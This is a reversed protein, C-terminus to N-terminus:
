KRRLTILTIEAPMDLRVNLGITGIGRNVYLYQGEHGYLGGWSNRGFYILSFEIGAPKLGWQMGHTHGSLTLQINKRDRVRAEWHAPDHTMLIKFAHAPVGKMALTLDAYQHFPPYGWNEVGTLYITDGANIIPVSENRLLRFGFKRNADVISDLNAEKLSRSKWRTYDGYDHNGLISYMGFKANLKSFVPEWGDTEKGFNNVLDGTFLIMDPHLSLINKIVKGIMYTHHNYSGLHLDSIQAITFGDFAEPLDKFELNLRQIRLQYRGIVAGTIVSGIIGCSIIVGAFLFGISRKRFLRSIFYPVSFFALVTKVLFDAILVIDYNFYVSYGTAESANHPYAFLYIFAFLMLVSYFTYFVIVAWRIRKKGKTLALLAFLDIVSLIFYLILTTSLIHFPFSRM